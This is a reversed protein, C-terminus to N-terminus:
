LWFHGFHQPPYINFTMIEQIEHLRSLHQSEHFDRWMDLKPSNIGSYSVPIDNEATRRFIRNYNKYETHYQWKYSFATIMFHFIQWCTLLEMLIDLMRSLKLQYKLM